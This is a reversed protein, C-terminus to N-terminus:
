NGVGIRYFFPGPVAANTDTYTTTGPQGVINSQLLSFAPPHGLNTSREVFYSIGSVSQWTLTVGPGNIVGAPALLKLVSTPNTPDTGVRWEQWNNMRDLDSDSYDASGDTPLGYQQLWAYSIVSGPGQFEYAGIDVTGAVIRPNGDLDLGAPASGNYGSNICPSNSQLRLNGGAYDVFLPANAINGLGNTPQPTTSCYNLTSSQSDYNAGNTASNYFVICNNLTCFAAGGGEGALNGTLTCNSLTGGAAGGGHTASNGTFTCNNLWSDSAGGGGYGASNSTLTCNNLRAYYTGGGFGASNGTLTCNNLMGESAGGGNSATNGALTCNNLTGGRAGGGSSPGNGGSPFASNGVIVCNSVCGTEGTLDDIALVGGGCDLATGNTVTFGTLSAGDTLYVCRVSGAGDITTYYPGNVSQISLPRTVVLRNTGSFVIAREGFAYVGNTVLVVAGPAAADVADQINTAATIWSIYPPVPKAGEISVYHVPRTVVHVLTTASVGGPHSDNYARLVVAYDGPTAWAHSTYPENTVSFGDGFNWISSTTRGQILAKFAVQVNTSVYTFPANIAVDLSGTADGGQFEDCGISPPGAWPEGDIDTGFAYLASGAGLCPSSASLHSASALRPDSSISNMGGLPLPTTCCYNLVCSDWNASWPSTNFYSICNNLTSYAAGGGEQDSHNGTLTCNKLTGRYAGGGGLLASNGTLVCNYLFGGFTGGGARGASNGVLVCNSLSGDDGGWGSLVGGGLAAHGNTLTFGSLSAGGDLYICRVSGAGDIVTVGPGNVSRVSLPFTFVVRSVTPEDFASRRGGTAYTGNTVIIEDGAAAADAADQIVTAATAWNTYPPTPSPSNLDVYHTAGLASNAAALLMGAALLNVRTRM